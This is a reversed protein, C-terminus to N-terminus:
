SRQVSHYLQEPLKIRPGCGHLTVRLASCGYGSAPRRIPRQFAPCEAHQDLLMSNGFALMVAVATVSRIGISPVPGSFLSPPVREGSRGRLGAEGSQVLDHSRDAIAAGVASGPSWM